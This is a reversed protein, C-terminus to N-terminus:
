AEKKSQEEAAKKAAEAAAKKAAEAKKRTTIVKKGQRCSQTLLRKAPCVFTCAGCEICNMIGYKEAEDYRDARVCRDLLTPMLQMPCARLCRGCNICASEVPDVAEEGLVLVGSTGKTVPIDTRTIAMGMMPGGCVVKCTEEKMGGAFKLLEELPTGIRVIVNKPENAGEGTVTVVKEIVPMGEYVARCISYITTVNFLAGTRAGPAVERGTM